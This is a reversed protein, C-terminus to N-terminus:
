LAYVEVVEMVIVVTHIYTDETHKGMSRWKTRGQM